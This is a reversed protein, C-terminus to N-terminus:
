AAVPLEAARRCLLVKDVLKIDSWSSPKESSKLSLLTERHKTVFDLFRHVFDRYADKGSNHNLGVDLAAGIWSDVVPFADPRLLHIFKTMCRIQATSGVKRLLGFCEFHVPEPVAFNWEATELHFASAGVLLDIWADRYQHVAQAIESAPSGRRPDHALGGYRHLVFELQREIESPSAGLGNSFIAVAQADLGLVAPRNYRSLAAM